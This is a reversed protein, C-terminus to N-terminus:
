AINSRLQREPQYAVYYSKNAEEYMGDTLRLGIFENQTMSVGFHQLLWLARDTVTMYEIKPNHKFLMGQNKRHWESDNPLYVENGEGPFGMKGIDHNLAVFILEDKTYGSM